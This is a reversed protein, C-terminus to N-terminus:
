VKIIRIKTKERDTDRPDARSGGKEPHRRAHCEACLSVLNNMDLALDPREEYPIVHHVMVAPAPKVGYGATFREMCDVCMGHDRILVARRCKKWRATHYFPKSEKVNNM